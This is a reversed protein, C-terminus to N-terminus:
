SATMQRDLPITQQDHMRRLELHVADQFNLIEDRAEDYPHGLALLEQALDRCLARWFETAPPGNLQDLRHASSRVLEARRALPFYLIMEVRTSVFDDHQM